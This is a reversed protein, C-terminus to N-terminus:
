RCSPGRRATSFRPSAIGPRTWCRWGYASRWLIAPVRERVTVQLVGGKRIHLEASAVADIQEITARLAALDLRFSSAPLTVPLMGRIAKAVPDSAGDIAMLGVMFEPRNEVSERLDALGTQLAARRDGDGLYGAVAGVILLSPLGLRVARRFGPTLWLREVRSALRSPAPDRRHAPEVYRRKAGGLPQM